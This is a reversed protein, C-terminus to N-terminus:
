PAKGAPANRIRAVRDTLYADLAAESAFEPTTDPVGLFYVVIGQSDAPMALMAAQFRLDTRPFEAFHARPVRLEIRGSVPTSPLLPVSRQTFPDTGTVAVAAFHAPDAVIRLSVMTTAEDAGRLVGWALAVGPAAFADAMGHLERAAEAARAPLALTAVLCACAVARFAPEIRM